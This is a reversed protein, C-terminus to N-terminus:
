KKKRRALAIVLIVLILVVVILIVFWIPIMPQPEKERPYETAGFPMHGNINPEIDSQLATTDKKEWYNSDNPDWYTDPTWVRIDPDGYFLVNENLDWWYQGNLYEVGVEAMGHEYAQGMTYGLALQRPISHAWIGSYWSTSWPDLIQYPTGHRIFVTHLYTNAVLCSVANLGCCHMNGLSDDFEIGNKGVLHIDGPISPDIVVGDGGKTRWLNGLIPILTKLGEQKLNLDTRFADNLLLIPFDPNMVTTDPDETSGWDVTLLNLPIFLKSSLKFLADM